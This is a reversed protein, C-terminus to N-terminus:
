VRMSELIKLLAEASQPRQERDAKLCAAILAALEPPFGPLHDAPATYEERGKVELLREMNRENFPLKGTFMYYM